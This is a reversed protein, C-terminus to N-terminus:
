TLSKTTIELKIEHFKLDHFSRKSKKKKINFQLM